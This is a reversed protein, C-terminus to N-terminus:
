FQVFSWKTWVLKGLVDWMSAQYFQFRPFKDIGQVIKRWVMGQLTANCPVNDQRFLGSGNTISNTHLSPSCGHKPLHSTDFYCGCLHRYQPTGASYQRSCWVAMSVTKGSHMRTGDKKWRAPLLFWSEDLWAQQECQLGKHQVFTLMPARVPRCCLLRLHQLICHM